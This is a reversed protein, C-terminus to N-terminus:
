LPVRKSAAYVKSSKRNIMTVKQLHDYEKWLVVNTQILVHSFTDPNAFFEM